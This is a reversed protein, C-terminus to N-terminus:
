IGLVLRGDFNVTTVSISEKILAAGLRGLDEPSDPGVNALGDSLLIVRHVYREDHLNKRIEAAGQSVGGFLATTEGARIKRIQREISASNGADQAPVITKVRHDYTVLSFLDGSRLRRLATIAAEKAKELKDGRMSGSRDLVVALNVPAREGAKPATTELSVKIVATQDEGARLVEKDLEVRCIVPRAWVASTCVMLLAAARGTATRLSNANEQM